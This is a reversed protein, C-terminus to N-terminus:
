PYHHNAGASIEAPAKKEPAAPPRCLQLPKTEAYRTFADDVARGDRRYLLVAAFPLLWLVRAQYRSHVSSFSGCIFANVLIGLLLVAALTDWRSGTVAGDRIRRVGHFVIYALGALAALLGVVSFLETPMAARWYRTREQAALMGAPLHCRYLNLLALDQPRKNFEALKVTVLQKSTDAVLAATTELPHSAAVALAFRYQENGLAQKTAPDALEFAGVRPNRSWLFDDSQRVPLIGAFKCVAFGAGPCNERVYDTGPGDALLRATIFPPRIPNAGLSKHVMLAFAMEGALGVGIALVTALVARIAAPKRRLVHCLWVAATVVIVIALNASHFLVSASLLFFWCVLRWGAMTGGFAAINAVALIAIGAFVDPMLYSTFFALPTLVALGACIGAWGKWDFRSGGSLTLGIAAMVALAQLIVSPWGGGTLDGLYLLAGYYISRGTLVTKGSVSSLRTGPGSSACEPGPPESWWTKHGTLRQVGADVARIYSPTDAFILPRGNYLAPWILTVLAAAACAVALGMRKVRSM